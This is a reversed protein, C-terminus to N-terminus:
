GGAPDPEGDQAAKQQLFLAIAAEMETGSLGAAHQRRFFELSAELEADTLGELPSSSTEIMQKPKGELRDGIERLAALDGAEALAILKEALADLMIRGDVSSRRALAREIAASWIKARAANRNGM